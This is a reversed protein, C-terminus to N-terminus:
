LVAPHGSSLPSESSAKIAGEAGAVPTVQIEHHSTPKYKLRHQQGPDCLQEALIRQSVREFAVRLEKSCRCSEALVMEFDHGAQVRRRAHNRLLVWAQNHVRGTAVVVLHSAETEPRRDIALAWLQPSIGM